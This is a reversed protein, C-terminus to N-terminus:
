FTVQYGYAAAIELTQEDLLLAREESDLDLPRIQPRTDVVDDSGGNDWDYLRRGFINQDLDAVALGLFEALTRLFTHPDAVLDEYRVQLLHLFRANDVRFSASIRVWHKLAFITWERNWSGTGDLEWRKLSIFCDVIHRTLHIFRAHPFCNQLSIAVNADYRVEKFGWISKGLQAASIGFLTTLYAVVVDDLQEGSPMMNALFHDYGKTVYMDRHSAYQDCWARLRNYEPLFNNLHGLQEGWILVNSHSNLLRQILTSGCRQGSALIFIPANTPSVDQSSLLGIM